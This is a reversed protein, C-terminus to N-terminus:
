ALSLPLDELLPFLLFLWRDLDLFLPFPFAPLGCGLFLLFGFCCLGLLLLRPTEWSSSADAVSAEPESLSFMSSSSGTLPLFPFLALLIVFVELLTPPCGFGVGDNLTETCEFGSQLCFPLSSELSSITTGSVPAVVLQM